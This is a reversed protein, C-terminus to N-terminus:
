IIQDINQIQFVKVNKADLQYDMTPGASYQAYLPYPLNISLLLGYLKKEISTFMQTPPKEMKKAAYVNRTDESNAFSYQEYEAAYNLAKSYPGGFPLPSLVGGFGDYTEPISGLRGRGSVPSLSRVFGEHAASKFRRNAVRVNILSSNNEINEFYLDNIITSALRYNQLYNNAMPMGPMGGAGPMFDLIDLQQNKKLEGRAACDKWYHIILDAWHAAILPSINDPHSHSFFNFSKKNNKNFQKVISRGHLHDRNDEHGKTMAHKM